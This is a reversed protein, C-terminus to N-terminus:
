DVHGMPGVSIDKLFGRLCGKFYKYNPDDVGNFKCISSHDAGDTIINSAMRGRYSVISSSRGHSVLSASAASSLPKNERLNLVRIKGETWQGLIKDFDDRLQELQGNDKQANLAALLPSNTVRFVGAIRRLLEGWDALDSGSHPTAFLCHNSNFDSNISLFSRRWDLESSSENCVQGPDRGLCEDRESALKALLNKSLTYLNSQNSHLPNSSYGFTLIRADVFDPALLDRPWFISLKSLPEAVDAETAPIMTLDANGDVESDSQTAGLEARNASSSGGAKRKKFLKGFKTSIKGGVAAVKSPSPEASAKPQQRKASWTSQPHGGLGHVFVIDAIPSQGGNSIITFDFDVVTVHKTTPENSTM